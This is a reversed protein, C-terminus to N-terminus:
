SHEMIFRVVDEPNDLGHPHHACEPKIHVAFDLGAREYAQQLLEGNENYPVVPDSGGAVMVFPIQNQVLHPINDLPMDRYGLLQSISQM